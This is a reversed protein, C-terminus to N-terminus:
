LLNSGLCRTPIPVLFVVHKIVASSLSWSAKYWRQVVVLLSPVLYGLTDLRLLAVIGGENIDPLITDVFYPSAMNTTGADSTDITSYVLANM